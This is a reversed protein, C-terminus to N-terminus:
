GDLAGRWAELTAAADNLAAAMAHMAEAYPKNNLGEFTNARGTADAAKTRLARAETEISNNLWGAVSM